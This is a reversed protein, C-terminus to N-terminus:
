KRNVWAYFPIDFKPQATHDTVMQISGNFTGTKNANFVAQLQTKEGPMLQNKMLSLKIMPFKTDLSLIKLPNKLSPNSITIMKTYTSDLKLNDFTFQRPELDVVNMVNTTFTVTVKPSSTDNSSIYVQKSVKSGGYHETNFSISLKGTANPALKKDADGMMAATCGCQARVESIRLTDSGVNKVALVREAKQGTYVDGMDLTTGGMVQIKPQAYLGITSLLAMIGILFIVTKM